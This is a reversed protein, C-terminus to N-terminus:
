VAAEEICCGELREALRDFGRALALLQERRCLDFRIGAAVRRLKRASQRYSAARPDPFDEDHLM